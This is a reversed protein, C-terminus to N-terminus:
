PTKASAAACQLVTAVKRQFHHKVEVAEFECVGFCDVHKAAVVFAPVQRFIECVFSLYQKAPSRRLQQAGTHTNSAHARATSHRSPNRGHKHARPVSNM